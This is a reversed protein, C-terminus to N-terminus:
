LGDGIPRRASSHEPHQAATDMRSHGQLAYSVLKGLDSHELSLNNKFIPELHRITVLIADLGINWASVCEEARGSLELDIENVVAYAKSGLSTSALSQYLASNLQYNVFDHM